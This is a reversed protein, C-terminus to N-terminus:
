YGGVYYNLTYELIITYNRLITTYTINIM